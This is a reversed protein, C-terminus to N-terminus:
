PSCTHSWNSKATIDTKDFVHHVHTRVTWVSVTLKDSIQKLDEGRALRVAIEFETSTIGYLQQL